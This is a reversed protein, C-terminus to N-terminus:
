KRQRTERKIRKFIRETLVDYDIKRKKYKKAAKKTNENALRKYVRETLKDVHSKRRSTKNTRRKEQNLLRRLARKVLKAENYRNGPPVEEESPDGDDRFGPPLEEEFGEEEFGEEPLEDELGFEEEGELEEGEESIQLNLAPIEDAFAQLANELQSIPVSEEETPEPMEEEPAELDEPEEGLDEPAGFDETAGLDEPAEGGGDFEDEEEPFGGQENVFQESLHKIGSLKMFRRITNEKLLNQKAM